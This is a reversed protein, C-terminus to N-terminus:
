SADDIRLERDICPRIRIREVVAFPLHQPEGAFAERRALDGRPQRQRLAGHAIVQGFRDALETDTVADLRVAQRPLLSPQLARPERYLRFPPATTPTPAQM